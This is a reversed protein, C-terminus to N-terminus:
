EFQKWRRHVWMWQDPWRKIIRELTANFRNTLIRQAELKDDTAVDDIKVATEVSIHLKNNEDWYTYLPIVPAKTKQAFVALGYATGTKRGFFETEIGYPKGMFQDLVFVVARKLRLAKLIEFANNKSHADIFETKSQTRLSFWFEDAFENSFRKTILSLPAVKESIIAAALDGGGLHLTLFFFGQDRPVNEMGHVVVNDRIWEENLYPIRGMDVLNRGLVYISKRMWNKKTEEKTGPFAIDINDYVVKKRLKLVDVWLWAFFRAFLDNFFWPLLNVFFAFVASVLRALKRM